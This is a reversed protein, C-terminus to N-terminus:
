VDCDDNQVFLFDHFIDAGFNRFLFRNQLFFFHYEEPTEKKARDGDCRLGGPFSSHRSAAGTMRLERYEIGRSQKVANGIVPHMTEKLLGTVAHCVTDPPMDGGALSDRCVVGGDYPRQGEM